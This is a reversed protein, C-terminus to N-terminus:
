IEKDALMEEPEGAARADARLKRIALDRDYVSYVRAAESEREAEGQLTPNSRRAASGASALTSGDSGPRPIIPQVNGIWIPENTEKARPQTAEVLCDAAM